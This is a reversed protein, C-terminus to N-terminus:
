AGNVFKNLRLKCQAELMDLEYDNRLNTMRPITGDPLYGRSDGDYTKGERYIKWVEVNDPGFVKAFHLPEEIFGCDSFVIVQDNKMTNRIRQIDQEALKAFVDNGMREKSITAYWICAERWSMGLLRDNVAERFEQHGPQELFRFHKDDISFMAKLAQKIPTAFKKTITNLSMFMLNAITDKGSGPPGNLLIIKIM